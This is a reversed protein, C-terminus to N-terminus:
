GGLRVLLFNYVYEYGIIIATFGVIFILIGVLENKELGVCLATVLLIAVSIFTIFILIGMAMKDEM